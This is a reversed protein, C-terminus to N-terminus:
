NDNAVPADSPKKNAKKDPKASAAPSLSDKGYVTSLTSRAIEVTVSDAIQVQIVDSADDAKVVKGVIGGGTLVKDGRKVSQIMAQHQKYKKQQPRLILFYFIGLILLLPVFSAALSPQEAMTATTEQAFASSIFM